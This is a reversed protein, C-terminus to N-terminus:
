RAYLKVKARQVLLFPLYSLRKLKLSEFNACGFKPSTGLNQAKQPNARVIGGEPGGEIFLLGCRGAQPGERRWFRCGECRGM